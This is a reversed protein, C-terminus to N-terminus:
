RSRSRWTRTSNGITPTPSRCCTARNTPSSAIPRSRSGTVRALRFRRRISTKTRVNRTCTAWAQTWACVILRGTWPSIPCAARSWMVTLEVLGANVMELIDDDELAEPAEKIVVPPKGKGVLGENLRTLSEYYSSSKRVFVERGSLDEPTSPPPVNPATVVIESVNTRTPTSFEALKRREPTVTLTAAVLDVKGEQLASFLQDRGLPIIAVYVKLLGTKLRKNIEEEFLHLAEYSMGRQQGRDIYYQTRNYVVGARILRRKVAEKFDGTFPKDILTRAQAPIADEPSPVAPLPQDDGPKTPM